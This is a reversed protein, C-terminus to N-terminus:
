LKYVKSKLSPNYEVVYAASSEIEISWFDEKRVGLVANLIIRIPGGHTVLAVTRRPNARAINKLERIVRTKFHGMREGGPIFASFPDKIWRRYIYPYKKIIGESDLGEWLGFDIERLDPNKIIECGSNKFVIRATQLARKLDSSFVKDVCASKLKLGLRLAQARGAKNLSADRHGCYIKKLNYSTQGHRILILKM